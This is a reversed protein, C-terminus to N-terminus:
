NVQTVQVLTGISVSRAAACIRKGGATVANVNKQRVIMSPRKALTESVTSLPNEKPPFVSDSVAKYTWDPRANCCTQQAETKEKGM